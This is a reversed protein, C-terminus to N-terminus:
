CPEPIMWLSFRVHTEAVLELAHGKGGNLTVHHDLDTL